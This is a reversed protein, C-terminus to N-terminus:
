RQLQAQVELEIELRKGVLVGGAELPANWVMGFDERNISTSASFAAVQAGWPNVFTGHYATDLVVPVTRGRITLDGRVQWTGGERTVGTSVFALTPHQEVDLFDPSRLHTDRDPSRTDVSAAQIQVSVQSDAPGDGVVVAGSFDSFTGRVKSVVLHRAVAGVTSHVPDIVYTGPAPFPQGAVERSLDATTTSTSM